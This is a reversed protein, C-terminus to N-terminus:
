GGGIAPLFHFESDRNIPTRLGSSAVSSDVAIMLGPRLQGDRCLRERTGPHISELAEIVERVTMGNVEVVEQGDTLDRIQAPIFVRAM